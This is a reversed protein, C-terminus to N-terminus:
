GTLAPVLPAAQRSRETIRHRHNSDVVRSPGLRVIVVRGRNTFYVGPGPEFVRRGALDFLGERSAKARTPAPVSTTGTYAIGATVLQDAFDPPLARATQAGLRLM